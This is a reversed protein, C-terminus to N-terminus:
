DSPYPKLGAMTTTNMGTIRFRLSVQESLEVGVIAQPKLSAVAGDGCFEVIIKEPEATIVKARQDNPRGSANKSIWVIM